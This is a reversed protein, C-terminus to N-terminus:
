FVYYTSADLETAEQDYCMGELCRLLDFMDIGLKDAEYKLGGPQDALDIRKSVSHGSLASKVVIGHTEYAEQGFYYSM